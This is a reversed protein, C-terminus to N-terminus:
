SVALGLPISPELGLLHGAGGLSLGVGGASLTALMKAMIDPNKYEKLIATDLVSSAEMM